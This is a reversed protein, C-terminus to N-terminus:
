QTLILKVVIKAHMCLMQLVKIALLGEPLQQISTLICTWSHSHIVVILSAVLTTESLLRQPRIPM